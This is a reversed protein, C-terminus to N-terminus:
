SSFQSYGLHAWLVLPLDLILLINSAKFDRHIVCPQSDEHLYALGRAADLPIKMRTDWDLPCNVGLPGSLNFSILLWRALCDEADYLQIQQTRYNISRVLFSGSYPLELTTFGQNNCNQLKHKSLHDAAADGHIFHLFFVPLLHTTAKKYSEITSEDLGIATIPQPSAAASTTSNRLRANAANTRCSQNTFYTFITIGVGGKEAKQSLDLTPIQIQKTRYNISRVLFNESYPLELVTFGQDNCRLDFVPHGCSQTQNGELYFPFRIPVGDSRCKTNSCSDAALHIFHLFVLLSIVELRGMIKLPGVRSITANM